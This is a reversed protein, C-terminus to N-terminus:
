NNLLRQLSYYVAEYFSGRMPEDRLFQVPLGPSGIFPRLIWSMQSGLFLNGALWAFLVRRAGTRNGSLAVLLQYLRLNAVIGAFAVMAVISLLIIAHASGARQTMELPPTNWILFALVPSLSGMIVAAIVFSMMVALFSQRVGINVGLLPALMANLLANGTMTLLVVVPFKVATYIAQEPAR